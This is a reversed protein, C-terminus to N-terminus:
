RKSKHKTSLKSLLRQTASNNGKPNTKPVPNRCSDKPLVTIVKQIQTQYQTEVVTKPYCQQVAPAGYNRVPTVHHGPAGYGGSPHHPILDGAAAAVVLTIVFLSRIMQFTISNMNIFLIQM